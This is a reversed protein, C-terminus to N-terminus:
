KDDEENEVYTNEGDDEEPKITNMLKIFNNIDDPNNFDTNELMFDLM